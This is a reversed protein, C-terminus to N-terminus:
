SYSTAHDGFPFYLLLHPKCYGQLSRLLFNRLVTFPVWATLAWSFSSCLSWRWRDTRKTNWEEERKVQIAHYVQWSRCSNTKWYKVKCDILLWRYTILLYAGEQNYQCKQTLKRVYDNDNMFCKSYCLSMNKFGHNINKSFRNRIKSTM